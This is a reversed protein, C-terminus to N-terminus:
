IKAIMWKQFNKTQQSDINKVAYSTAEAYFEKLKSNSLTRIKDLFAIETLRDNDIFIDPAPPSNIGTNRFANTWKRGDRFLLAFLNSHFEGSLYAQYLSVLANTPERRDSLKFTRIGMQEYENIDETRIFPSRLLEVPHNLYTSACWFIHPNREGNQEADSLQQSRRSLYQYHADRRPCHDLCSVNAYLRLEIESPTLSVLEEIRPFDRNVTHQNLTIVKVGLYAYRKAEELTDTGAIVSLHLELHPYERKLLAILYDESVTLSDIRTDLLFNIEERIKQLASHNASLEKNTGNMLYNFKLGFDHALQIHEELEKWSVSPLETAPRGSGVTSRPLSGYVEVVKNSYQQNLNYIQKLLEPDFNTAVSFNAM